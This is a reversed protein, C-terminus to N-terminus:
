SNARVDRVPQSTKIITNPCSGPFVKCKCATLSIFGIDSQGNFGSLIPKKVCLCTKTGLIEFDLSPSCYIKVKITCHCSSPGEIM